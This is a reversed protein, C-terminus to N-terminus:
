QDQLIVIVETWGPWVGAVVYVRWTRVPGGLYEAFQMLDGGDADARVIGAWHGLIWVTRMVSQMNMNAIHTYNGEHMGQMQIMGTFTQYTPTMNGASDTTSGTSRQLTAPIDPNIANIAGRVVNHLNLV